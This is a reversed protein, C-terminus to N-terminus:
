GKMKPLRSDGVHGATMSAIISELETLRATLCAIEAEAKVLETELQNAYDVVAQAHQATTQPFPVVIGAQDTYETLIDALVKM